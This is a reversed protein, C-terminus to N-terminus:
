PRPEGDEMSEGIQLLRLTADPGLGPLVERAKAVELVRDIAQQAKDDVDDVIPRCGLAPSLDSPGIYIADL